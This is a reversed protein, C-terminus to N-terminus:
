FGLAMPYELKTESWRTGGMGKKKGNWHILVYGSQECLQCLNRHADVSQSSPHDSQFRKPCVTEINSPMPRLGRTNTDPTASSGVRFSSENSSESEPALSQIGLSGNPGTMETATSQHDAFGDWLKMGHRDISAMGLQRRPM